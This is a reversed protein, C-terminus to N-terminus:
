KGTSVLGGRIVPALTYLQIFFLLQLKVYYYFPFITPLMPFLFNIRLVFLIILLPIILYMVDIFLQSVTTEKILTAHEIPLDILLRTDFDNCAQLKRMDVRM